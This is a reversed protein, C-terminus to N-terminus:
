VEFIDVPEISIQTAKFGLVRLAQLFREVYKDGDKSVFAIAKEVDESSADTKIYFFHEGNSTFEYTKM